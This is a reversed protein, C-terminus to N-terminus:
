RSMDEYKRLKEKFTELDDDFSFEIERPATQPKQDAYDPRGAGQSLRRELRKTQLEGWVYVLADLLTGGAIFTFAIIQGAIYRLSNM